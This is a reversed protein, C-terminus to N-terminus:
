ETVGYDELVQDPDKGELLLRGYIYGIMEAEDGIGDLFEADAADLQEAVLKKLGSLREPSFDQERDTFFESM